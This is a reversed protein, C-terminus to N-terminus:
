VQMNETGAVKLVQFSRGKNLSPELIGDMTWSEQSWRAEVTHQASVTSQVAGAGKVLRHPWQSLSWRSKMKSNESGPMTGTTYCKIFSANIVAMVGMSSVRPAVNKSHVGRAKTLKILAM